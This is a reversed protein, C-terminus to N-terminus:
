SRVGHFGMRGGTLLPREEGEGESGKRFEEPKPKTLCKESRGVGM